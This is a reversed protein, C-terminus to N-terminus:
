ATWGSLKMGELHALANRAGETRGGERLRLWSLWSSYNPSAQLARSAEEIAKDYQRDMRYFDTAGHYLVALPDLERARNGSEIAKDLRGYLWHLWARQFHAM